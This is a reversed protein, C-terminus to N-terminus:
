KYVKTLVDGLGKFKRENHDGIDTSLRTRAFDLPYVFLSGAAGAFGGAM